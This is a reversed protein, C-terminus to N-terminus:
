LMLKQVDEGGRFLASQKKGNAEVNVINMQDDFTDLLLHNRLYLAPPATSLPVALYLWHADHDREMGVYRWPLSEGPKTGFALARRLLATTLTALQPRPDELVSVPRPQNASLAKELDDTFVKVAVELQKKQSNYRVDMISAHYAHAQAQGVVGILLLLLFLWGRM